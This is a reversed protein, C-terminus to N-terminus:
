LLHIESAIWKGQEQKVLVRLKGGKRITEADAAKGQKDFVEIGSKCKIERVGVKKIKLTISDLRYSYKDPVAQGSADM